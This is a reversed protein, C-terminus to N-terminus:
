PKSRLAVPLYLRVSPNVVRNSSTQGTVAGARWTATAGTNTVMVPAAMQEEDPSSAAEDQLAVNIRIQVSATESVETGQLFGTVTVTNENQPGSCRGDAHFDIWLQKQGGPPLSGITNWQIFGPSTFSPPIQAGTFTVCDTSYLDSLRLQDFGTNGTDLITVIYRITDGVTAPNPSGTLTVNM